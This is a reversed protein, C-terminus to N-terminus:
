KNNWNFVNSYRKSYYIHRSAECFAMYYGLKDQVWLLADIYHWVVM